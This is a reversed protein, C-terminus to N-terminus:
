RNLFQIVAEKLQTQTCIPAGTTCFRCESFLAASLLSSRLQQFPLDNVIEILEKECVSGLQHDYTCCLHVDGKARVELFNWPKLCLRTMGEPAVHAQNIHIKGQTNNKMQQLRAEIIKSLHVLLHLKKHHRAFLVDAERIQIVADLFADNELDSIEGLELDSYSQSPVDLHSLTLQDANVAIAYSALQLIYPASHKSIVSHINIYPPKEGRQLAAARIRVLNSTFTRIDVKRRLAKLIEPHCTDLSVTLWQFRSLLVCEEDTFNKALNTILAYHGKTKAFLANIEEMWNPMFTTEGRGNLTISAPTYQNVFNFTRSKVQEDMLIPKDNPDSVSCYVCRLNCVQTLEILMEDIKNTVLLDVGNQDQQM